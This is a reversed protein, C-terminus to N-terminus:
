MKKTLPLSSSIFSESPIRSRANCPMYNTRRNLHTLFCKICVGFRKKLLRGHWVCESVEMTKKNGRLDCGLTIDHLTRKAFEDYIKKAFHKCNNVNWFYTKNLEDEEHLFEILDKM